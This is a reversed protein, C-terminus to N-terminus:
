YRMQELKEQTSQYTIEPNRIVFETRATKRARNVAKEMYEKRAWAPMNNFGPNRVLMDLSNKVYRGTLESYKDYQADSLEIDMIKRQPKSVKVGLEEAMKAVPNDKVTSTYVPSLIDPGLGGERVIPEGTYPSRVPFLTERQGPIRSKLVDIMSRAERLAPDQTRAIQAVGTPIATGALRQVWREGYRDPDDLVKIADSLGRLWTKSTINKAISGIILGAINDAEGSDIKDSIEVYDAAVGFLMGFPELRQYSYWKDNIKISYPQWGQEYKAARKDEDGGGSILGQLAYQTVLAGIASGVMIRSAARDRAVKGNKGLLDNRVPKFIVALPSREIAFKMINVSVRVFPIIVKVAPVKATFDQISQGAPGLGRTFTGYRAEDTAYDEMEKTPNAKLRNIEDALAKGKFGKALAMRTSLQAIMGQSIISKFFEDEAKLLRGPIRVKRGTWNVFKGAAVEPDLKFTEARIARRDLEYKTGIDKEQETQYTKVAAKAASAGGHIMGVARAMVDRLYVRDTKRMSGLGAAVADEIGMFGQVISNSTMNVVHTQPGSLLANYWLELLVDGATPNFVDRSFKSVQGVTEFDLIMEMAADPDGRFIDSAIRNVEKLEMTQKRLIQLARGAEAVAGSYKAQVEVHSAMAKLVAERNGSRGAAIVKQASQETLARAADLEEASFAKGRRRKKLDEVTMGLDQALAETKDWGVKGRREAEMKQVNATYARQLIGPTGPQRMKSVNINGAYKEQAETTDEAVKVGFTGPKVGFKRGEGYVTAGVSAASEGATNIVDIIYGHASLPASWKAVNATTPVNMLFIGGGAGHKQASGKILRKLADMDEIIDGSAEEIGSVMMKSNVAVVQFNDGHQLRAALESSANPNGVKHGAWLDKEGTVKFLPDKGKFFEKDHQEFQAVNDAPISAYKNSDIVVHGKLGPVAENLYSTSDLDAMSPKPDGSPHNHLMWYGDAGTNSMKEQLWNVGQQNDVNFLSAQGPLRQSFGSHGVVIGDKVFVYRMTEWRPDRWVQALTALEEPSNVAKGIPSYTGNDVLDSNISQLLTNAEALEATQTLDDILGERQPKNQAEDNARYEGGTERIGSQPKLMEPIKDTEVIDEDALGAQRKLTEPLDETAVPKGGKGGFLLVPVKSIGLEKAAHARHRGDEKGDDYITLPDLNRGSTIHTKLDNINDRSSEDIKLSRVQSIYEDPSMYVVEGGRAKYDADGYWQGRPAIPYTKNEPTYIVGNEIAYDSVSEEIKIDAADAMAIEMPTAPRGSIDREAQVGTLNEAIGTRVDARQAREAEQQEWLMNEQAAKARAKREIAPEVVQKDVPQTAGVSEQPAEAPATPAPQVPRAQSWDINWQNTRPDQIDAIPTGSPPIPVDLAQPQGAMMGGGAGMMAAFPFVNAGRRFAEGVDEGGVAAMYPEEAWETLGETLGTGIVKAAPSMRSFMAGGPLMNLAGVGLLNKYFKEMAEPDDEAIDERYEPLAELTGAVGGMGLASMLPGAGARYLGAGTGISPLLSPVIEGMGAALYDINTMAGTPDEWLDAIAAPARRNIAQRRLWYDEVMEGTEEAGLMELGTGVSAALGAGGRKLGTWFEGWFGRSYQDEYDQEVSEMDEIGMKRAQSMYADRSPGAWVSADEGFDEVYWDRLTSIDSAVGQQSAGQLYQQFSPKAM